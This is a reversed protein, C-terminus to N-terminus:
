GSALDNRGDVTRRNFRAPATASPSHGPAPSQGSGSAGGNTLADAIAGSRVRNTSFSGAHISQATVVIFRATRRAILDSSIALPFYAVPHARDRRFDVGGVHEVVQIIARTIGAIRSSRFIRRHCDAHSTHLRRASYAVPLSLADFTIGIDVARASYTRRILANGRRTGVPGFIPGLRIDVTAPGITCRTAIAQNATNGTITLAADARAHFASSGRADVHDFIPVFGVDIAPAIRAARALGALSAHLTAITNSSRARSRNAQGRTRIRFLVPVFGIDIAAPRNTIGTRRSLDTGDTRITRSTYAASAKALHCATGIFHFIAVLRADIATAITHRIAGITVCAGVIVIAHAVDAHHHDTLCRSARIGPLITELGVGITASARARSTTFAFHTHLIAIARAVNAHRAHTNTGDAAVSVRAAM